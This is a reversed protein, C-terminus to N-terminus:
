RIKAITGIRASEYAGEVVRVAEMGDEGTIEVPKDEAVAKVFSNVLGLDINSGWYGWSCRMSSDSYINMKQAFMDMSIVGEEGLIEMTVDGWTPFSKPRTWSSDLTAFTGDALQLTLMGVDDYDQGFMTNDIEAYVETVESGTVWRILDTVHVTHDIVAGGGALKKDIFWGGPCMGHNTGKIAVIKGIQGSDIAQKARQMAPHYRCPFATQLKVGANKCADIMAKADAVTPAIPKESMVHKGASAAMETLERHLVNESCIIVADIDASLLSKYSDFFQTGSQEAAQKGRAADNDAVGVFEADPIANVCAAYSFAHMHAFSMMGIKVAM